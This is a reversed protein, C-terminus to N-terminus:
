SEDCSKSLIIGTWFPLIPMYYTLLYEFIEISYCTNLKNGKFIKSRACDNRKLIDFHRGFPSKLRYTISNDSPEYDDLFKSRNRQLEIKSTVLANLEVLSSNFIETNSYENSLVICLLTFLRNIERM